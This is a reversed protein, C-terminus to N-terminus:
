MLFRISRARVFLFLWGAPVSALAIIILTRPIVHWLYVLQYRQSEWICLQGGVVAILGAVGPRLGRWWRIAAIVAWLVANAGVLLQTQAHWMMRATGAHSESLAVMAGLALLAGSAGVAVICLTAPIRSV